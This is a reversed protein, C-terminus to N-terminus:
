QQRAGSIAVAEAWLPIDAAITAAFKEPNDGIPDVGFNDLSRTFAPDNAARQMEAALREVIPRPTGTPAMLGNWTITRFGPYGSEAVTPVEPFQASRKEDSVALLRVAGAKYQPVADSRNGFYATVHGGVLDTMMQAGGKYPVHVMEIGARKLLLAMSLHALSGVGASGYAIKGPRARVYEIFEKLTQVPMGPHVMLVFPASAVNSIPAFDKVPDYAVSELAPVVGIQTLSGIFLTYGDAPARAVTRAALAGAAGGQNEMVFPQGLSETLRQGVLRAIGDTLGGPPFPVIVRVPKVPYQQSQAPVAMGVAVVAIFLSLCLIKGTATIASLGIMGRLNMTNRMPDSARAASGPMITDTLDALVCGQHAL